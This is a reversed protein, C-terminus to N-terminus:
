ALEGTDQILVCVWGQVPTDLPADDPVEGWSELVAKVIWKTKPYGGYRAMEIITTGTAMSRHIAPIMGDAYVKLFAGQQNTFNLHKLDEVSMSQTQLEKEQSIYSQVQTGDDEITYGESVKLTAVINGNVARTMRNALKRVALSM